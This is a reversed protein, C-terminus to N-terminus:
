KRRLSRRIKGLVRRVAIYPRRIPHLGTWVWVYFRYRPDTVEYRRGNRHFATVKALIWAHPVTEKEWQNDGCCVCDYESPTGIVRHLIYKGTDRRYLIVDGKQPADVSRTLVVMDRRHHLMPMMSSGTVTLHAVGDHALQVQILEALKEMPIVVTQM